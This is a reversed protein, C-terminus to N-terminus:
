YCVLMTGKYLKLMRGIILEASNGEVWANSSTSVVDRSNINSGEICLARICPTVYFYGKNTPIEISHPMVTNYLVLKSIDFNKILGELFRKSQIGEHFVENKYVTLGSLPTHKRLALLQKKLIVGIGTKDLESFNYQFEQTEM